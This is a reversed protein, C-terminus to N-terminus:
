KIMWIINPSSYLDNFEENHQRRWEGKVSCWDMYACFELAIIKKKVSIYLTDCVHNQAIEM